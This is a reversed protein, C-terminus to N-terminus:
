PHSQNIGITGPRAYGVDTAIYQGLRLVYDVFESM